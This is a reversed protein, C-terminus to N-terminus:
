PARSWWRCCSPRWCARNRWFRAAQANTGGASRRLLNVAAVFLRSAVLVMPVLLIWQKLEAVGVVTGGKVWGGIAMVLLFSGALVPM